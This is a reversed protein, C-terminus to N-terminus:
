LGFIWLGGELELIGSGLGFISSDLYFLSLGFGLLSIGLGFISKGGLQAVFFVRRGLGLRLKPDKEKTRRREKKKVHLKGQNYCNTM